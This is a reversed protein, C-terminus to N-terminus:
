LKRGEYENVRQRFDTPVQKTTEAKYDYFVQVSEADGVLRNNKRDWLEYKFDFSKDGIRNVRIGVEIQDGLHIPAEYEITIKAVIFDVEPLTNVGRIKMFYQTRAEELYTLYVANNVHGMGDIDRFRVQIPLRFKFDSLVM